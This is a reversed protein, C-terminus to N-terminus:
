RSLREKQIELEVSEAVHVSQGRRELVFVHSQEPEAKSICYSIVFAVTEFEDGRTQATQFPPPVDFAGLFRKTIEPLYHSSCSYSYLYGRRYKYVRGGL